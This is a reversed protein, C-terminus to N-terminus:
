CMLTCFIGSIRLDGIRPDDQNGQIDAGPEEIGDKDAILFVQVLFDDFFLNSSQVGTQSGFHWTYRCVREHEQHAPRDKDQDGERQEIVWSQLHLKHDVHGQQVYDVDPM